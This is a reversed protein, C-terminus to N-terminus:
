KEKSSEIIPMQGYYEPVNGQLFLDGLKISNSVEINKELSPIIVKMSVDIELFIELFTNNIGSENMTTKITTSVNGVTEFQIPIKPGLSSLLLNDTTVGLPMYYIIDEKENSKPKKSDEKKDEASAYGNELFAQIREGAESDLQNYIKPNFSYGMGSESEHLIILEDMDISQSMEESVAENIAQIAINHTKTEAISMISPEIKKDILWISFLTSLVFLIFSLFFSKKLSMARKQRFKMVSKVDM